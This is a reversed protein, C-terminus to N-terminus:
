QSAESKAAPSPEDLNGNDTMLRATELFIIFEATSWLSAEESASLYATTQVAGASNYTEVPCWFLPTCGAPFSEGTMALNQDGSLSGLTRRGLEIFRDRYSGRDFADFLWAYSGALVALPPLWEAEPPQVGWRQQARTESRSQLIDALEGRTIGHNSPRFGSPIQAGSNEKALLEIVSGRLNRERWAMGRREGVLRDLAKAIPLFHEEDFRNLPYFFSFSLYADSSIPDSESTLLDTVTEYGLDVLTQLNEPHTARQMSLVFEPDLGETENANEIWTKLTKFFGALEQPLNQSNTASLQVELLKLGLLNFSLWLSRARGEKKAANVWVHDKALYLDLNALLKYAVEPVERLSIKELRLARTLSLISLTDAMLAELDPKKNPHEALQKIARIRGEILEKSFLKEMASRLSSGLDQSLSAEAGRALAVRNLTSSPNTNEILGSLQHRLNFREGFTSVVEAFSKSGLSSLVARNM